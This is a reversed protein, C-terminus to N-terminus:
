EHVSTVFFRHIGHGMLLFDPSDLLDMPGSSLVTQPLLAPFCSFSSKFAPIFSGVIFKDLITITEELQALIFPLFQCFLM